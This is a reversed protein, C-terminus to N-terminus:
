KLRQYPNSYRCATHWTHEPTTSNVGVKNKDKVFQKEAKKEVM